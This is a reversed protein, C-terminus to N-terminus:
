AGLAARGSTTWAIAEPPLLERSLREFTALEEATLVDRWRGNIGKYLFTEAGGVFHGEFDAIEDSRERM